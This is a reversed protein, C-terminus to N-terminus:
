PSPNTSRPREASGTMGPRATGRPAYSDLAHDLATRAEAAARATALARRAEARLRPDIAFSPSWSHPSMTRRIAPIACASSSTETREKPLVSASAQMSIRRFNSRWVPRRVWEATEGPCLRGDSGGREAPNLIADSQCNAGVWSTAHGRGSVPSGISPSTCSAPRATSQRLGSVERRSRHLRAGARAVTGARRGRHHARNRPRPSYQQLGPGEVDTGEVSLAVRPDRELNRIKQGGGLHALVIEDGDLGVWVISIQPSSDSQDDRPARPAGVAAPHTGVGPDRGHKLGRGAVQGISTPRVFNNETTTEAETLEVHADRSGGPGDSRHHRFRADGRVDHRPANLSTDGFWEWMSDAMRDNFGTLYPGPNLLTVDIGQPALEARMAKGMAELAHKTMSYPGFSPGVVVGAISSVIIFADRAKRSWARCCRRRSRWRAFVNVDFLHRVRELPVDAMPGTQGAGANNILVDIDWSAAKDVDSSTFDLKEVTLEPAETRLEKAQEETETTAIVKHGRAALAISAGKGFGSGAGTIMVTKTM